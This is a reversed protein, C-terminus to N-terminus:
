AKATLASTAAAVEKATLYYRRGTATSPSVLTLIDSQDFEMVDHRQSYGYSNSPLQPHLFHAEVVQAEM